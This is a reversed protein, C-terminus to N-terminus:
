GTRACTEVCLASPDATTVAAPGNPLEEEATCSWLGAASVSSVLAVWLIASALLFHRSAPTRDAAEDLIAQMRARFFSQRVMPLGGAVPAVRQWRALELLHKAYTEPSVGTRLAADDCACELAARVEATLRSVLPNLWYLARVLEALVLVLYDRRAVHALEHALVADLCETSWERAARPLLVVAHRWGFTIPGTVAESCALRVNARPAFAASARRFRDLLLGDPAAEATRVVLRVVLVQRAFRAILLVAGAMWVAGLWSALPLTAAGAVVPTDGIVPAGVWQALKLMDLQFLFRPFAIVTLDASPLLAPLVPLLLLAAVALTSIASRLSASRRSLLARLFVLALVLLSAKLWVLTLVFDAAFMLMERLVIM